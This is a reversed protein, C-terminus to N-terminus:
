RRARSLTGNLDTPLETPNPVDKDLDKIDVVQDAPPEKVTVRSGWATFYTDVSNRLSGLEKGMDEETYSFVRRPLGKTDVWISWTLKAKADSGTPRAGQTKRYSPSLKYLEGATITGRYRITRAGGVKGGSSKSTASALLSGYTKPETVDIPQSSMGTPSFAGKGTVRVWSKGEPLDKDYAGGNFYNKGNVSIM